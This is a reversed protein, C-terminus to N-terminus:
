RSEGKLITEVNEIYASWEQKLEKMHLKGELTISYYRRNRGEFPQDYTKLYNDKTLRRLVPYLTSESINLKDKIQHTLKYGYTDEKEVIALVCLDLVAGSYQFAM